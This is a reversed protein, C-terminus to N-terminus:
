NTLHFGGNKITYEQLKGQSNKLVTYYFKKM